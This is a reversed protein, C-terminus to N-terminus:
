FVWISVTVIGTATLEIQRSTDVNLTTTEYVDANANKRTVIWGSWARGLGHNIRNAAAALTVTIMNGDLIEKKSLVNVIESINEHAGSVSKGFYAALRKM